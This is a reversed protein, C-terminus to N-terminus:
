HLVTSQSESMRPSNLSENMYTSCKSLYSDRLTKLENESLDKKAVSFMVSEEEKIHTNVLTALVKAKAEIEETWKINYNLQQLDKSILFAHDHEAKGAIGELRAERETNKILGMYLTEEEAKGHMNLLHLFRDLHTQKEISNAVKDTLINISEKLFDHHKELLDIFGVETNKDELLSARITSLSHPEHRFTKKIDHIASSVFDKNGHTTKNDPM